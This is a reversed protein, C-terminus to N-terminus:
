FMMTSMKSQGLWKTVLNILIVKKEGALETLDLILGFLIDIHNYLVAIKTRCMGVDIVLIENM